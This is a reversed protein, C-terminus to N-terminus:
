GTEEGENSGAVLQPGFKERLRQKCAANVALNDRQRQEAKNHPRSESLSWLEKKPPAPSETANPATSETEKLWDPVNKPWKKRREELELGREISIGARECVQAFMQRQTMGLGRTAGEGNPECLWDWALAMKRVDRADFDAPSYQGASSLLSPSPKQPAERARPLDDVGEEALRKSNQLKVNRIAREGPSCFRESSSCRRERPLRDSRDSIQEGPSCVLAKVDALEYRKGIKRALGLNVILRLAEFVKGISVHIRSAIERVTPECPPRRWALVAYVALGYAGLRPGFFSIIENDAWFFGPRPQNRGIFQPAIPDPLLPVTIGGTFNNSAIKESNIHQM